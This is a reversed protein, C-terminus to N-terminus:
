YGTASIRFVMGGFRSDEELTIEVQSGRERTGVNRSFSGREISFGNVADDGGSLCALVRSVNDGPMEISAGQLLESCVKMGHPYDAHSCRKAGAAPMSDDSFNSGWITRFTVVRQEGPSVSDVFAVVSKCIPDDIAHQEGGSCASCLLAIALSPIALYKM